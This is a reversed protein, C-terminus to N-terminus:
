RMQRGVNVDFTMHSGRTLQPLHCGLWEVGLGKEGLGKWECGRLYQNWSEPCFCLLACCDGDKFPQAAPGRTYHISECYGFIYISMYICWRDTIYVHCVYLGWVEELCVFLGCFVFCAWLVQTVNISFGSPFLFFLLFPLTATYIEIAHGKTTSWTLVHCIACLFFQLLCDNVEVSIQPTSSFAFTNATNKFTGNLLSHAKLTINWPQETKILPSCFLDFLMM